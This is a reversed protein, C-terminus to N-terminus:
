GREGDRRRTGLDAALTRRHREDIARMERRIQDRLLPDTSVSALRERGAGMPASSAGPVLELADSRTVETPEVLELARRLLTMAGGDDDQGEAVRAAILQVRADDPRRVAQAIRLEGLARREPGTLSPDRDLGSLVQTVAAEDGADLLMSALELRAGRTAVPASAMAKCMLAVGRPHEGLKSWVVAVHAALEPEDQM